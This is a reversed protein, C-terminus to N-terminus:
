SKKLHPAYLKFMKTIYKGIVDFELNVTTGVRFTSFNTHEYTYPIIAVSFSQKGAEVVTLSVGNVCISGKPVLVGIDSPKFEFHFYWSGDVENINTCTAVQDVHGQVFHGDLRANAQMARELNVLNGVQWHKLSTVQMTEQIATVTYQTQNCKVVTLCVGNHAVSQDIKLQAALPTEITFHVNTGEKEIAIIKGQEEIIGTFM